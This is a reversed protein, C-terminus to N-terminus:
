YPDQKKLSTVLPKIMSDNETQFQWLFSYESSINLRRDQVLYDEQHYDSDVDLICNSFTQM